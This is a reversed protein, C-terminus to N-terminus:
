FTTSSGTRNQRDDLIKSLEGFHWRETDDLTPRDAKADEIEGFDLEAYDIREKFYPAKVMLNGRPGYVQSGGWFFMDDQKGVLNVYAVFITNELARAPLVTEFYHRTQFPSASICIMLETGKLAALKWLEPFFADYCICLSIKGIELDFVEIGKWQSFSKKEAFLGFSPLYNKKYVGKKGNPYFILASNYVRDKSAIPCGMVIYKNHEEALKSVFKLSPGELDEALENWRINKGYGTLFMEGFVLLDANAQKVLKEIRKLNGEKNGLLPTAAILGVRM